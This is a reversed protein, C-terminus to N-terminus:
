RSRSSRRRAPAEEAKKEETQIPKPKAKAQVKTWGASLYRGAAEDAVTVVVASSPPNLRTSM